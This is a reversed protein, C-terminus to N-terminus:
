ALSLEYDMPATLSQIANDLSASDEATSKIVLESIRQRSV